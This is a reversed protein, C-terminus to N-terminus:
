VQVSKSKKWLLLLPRESNNKYFDSYCICVDTWDHVAKHRNKNCSYICEPMLVLHSKLLNIVLISSVLSLFWAHNCGTSHIKAGVFTKHWPSWYFYEYNSRTSSGAAHIDAYIFSAHWTNWLQCTASIVQFFFVGFHEFYAAANSKIKNNYVKSKECIITVNFSVFNGVLYM